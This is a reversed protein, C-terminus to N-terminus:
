LKKLLKQLMVMYADVPSMEDIPTDASVAHVALETTPTEAPTPRNTYESDHVVRGTVMDYITAM